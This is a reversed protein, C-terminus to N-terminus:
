SLRERMSHWTLEMGDRLSVFRQQGFEATYRGIDLVSRQVFTAPQPQRCVEVSRGTVTEALELVRSLTSGVGSGVNYVDHDTERGVAEAIMRVADGVFIYDRVMSGDGFFEVPDGAAIRHLFIPIVGQKRGPHQRPGYPNSIRFTVSELGHKLRFYRLYGEITQKGIAYPSVPAPLTEETIRQASQNGYVAGGTSAFYVRSVGAQVALEFLDVSPMVNTRVDLTPDDEVTFPSTTSLFHFLYEQGHLAASLDVNSLYDGVFKRVGTATYNETAATFRDFATVEHGRAVLEDVLHSGLFGNGGIVLCSAM